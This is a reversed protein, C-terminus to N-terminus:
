WRSNAMSGPRRPMNREVSMTGAPRWASPWGRSRPAHARGPRCAAASRARVPSATVHREAKGLMVARADPPRQDLRQGGPEAGPERRLDALGPLCGIRQKGAHDAFRRARLAIAADLGMPASSRDTMVRAECCYLPGARRRASSGAARHVDRGPLLVIGSMQCCLRGGAMASCGTCRRRTAIRAASTTPKLRSISRSSGARQGRQLRRSRDEVASRRPM